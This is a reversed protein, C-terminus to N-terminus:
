PVWSQGIHGQKTNAQKDDTELTFDVNAPVRESDCVLGQYQGLGVVPARILERRSSYCMTVFTPVEFSM